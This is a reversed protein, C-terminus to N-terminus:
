LIGVQDKQAYDALSTSNSSLGLQMQTMIHQYQMQLQELTSKNKELNTLSSASTTVPMEDTPITTTGATTTTSTNINCANQRRLLLPSTTYSSDILQQQQLLNMQIIQELGKRGLDVM